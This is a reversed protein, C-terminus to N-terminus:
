SKRGKYYIRLLYFSSIIFAFFISNLLVNSVLKPKKSEITLFISQNKDEVRVLNDLSNTLSSLYLNKLEINAAEDIKTTYNDIKNKFYNTLELRSIEESVEIIEELIKDLNEFSDWHLKIIIFNDRIEYNINDKLFLELTDHKEKNVFEQNLLRRINELIGIELEQFYIFNDSKILEKATNESTLNYLFIDKIFNNDTNNLLGIPTAEEVYEDFLIIETLYKKEAIFFSYIQFLFFSSIFVIFVSKINKKLFILADEFNQVKTM